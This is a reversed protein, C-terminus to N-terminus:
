KKIGTEYLLENKSDITIVLVDEGNEFDKIEDTIIVNGYKKPFGGKSQSIVLSPDIKAYVPYAYEINDIKTLLFIKKYDDKKHIAAESATRASQSWFGAHQTPAILYIRELVFVMQLLIAAVIVGVLYKSKIQPLGYASLLILPPLMISNRLFHPEGTLVGSVPSVLLWLILFQFLKRSKVRLVFIGVFLTAVEVLYVAGSEAPNHRPNHDGTLLLFDNSFNQLYGGILEKSYEIAKNHFIENAVNPLGSVQREFNVKQTIEEQLGSQAFINIDEFREQSRGILIERVVLSLFVGFVVIGLVFFLNSFIKKRKFIGVYWFTLVLFPLVILKYTQYTHIALGWSLGAYIFFWRRSESYLLFYLGLLTLFLAFHSEFGARSLAIEWPSIATLLAAILGTRQGFFKSGLLYMLIIIGVGSILSLMRVALVSPGFIAVFPISAYVYGGPSQGRMEFTIPLFKGTQDRGTKLISYSDYVMTLEDGYLPLATIRYARIILGLSLIAALLLAKRM